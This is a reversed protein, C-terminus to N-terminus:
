YVQFYVELFAECLAVQLSNRRKAVSHKTLFWALEILIRHAPRTLKGFIASFVSRFLRLEVSADPWPILGIHGLIELLLEDGWQMTYRLPVQKLQALMQAACTLITIKRLASIICLDDSVRRSFIIWMLCLLPWHTRSFKVLLTFQLGCDAGINMIHLTVTSTPTSPLYNVYWARVHSHTVHM